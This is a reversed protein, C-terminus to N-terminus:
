AVRRWSTGSAADELMIGKRLLEARIQDAQAYQKAKKADARAQIARAIDEDSIRAQELNAVLLGSRKVEQPDLQLINLVAALKRTSADDTRALTWQADTLSHAQANRKLVAVSDRAPDFTVMVVKLREREAPQLKNATDRLADTLMPCVFQCSTFFMSILMPQGRLSDLRFTNGNQDTLSVPLQYISDTPLAVRTPAQAPGAAASPAALGPPGASAILVALAAHLVPHAAAVAHTM